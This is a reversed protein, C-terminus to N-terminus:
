TFLFNHLFNYAASIKMYLNVRYALLLVIKYSINHVCM